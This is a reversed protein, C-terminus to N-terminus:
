TWPRFEVTPYSERVEHARWFAPKRRSCTRAAEGRQLFAPREARTQETSIFFRRAPRRAVQLRAYRPAGALALWALASKRAPRLGALGRPSRGTGRGFVDAM